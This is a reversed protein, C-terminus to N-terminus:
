QELISNLLDDIKKIKQCDQEAFDKLRLEMKKNSVMAQLLVMVMLDQRDRYAKKSAYASMTSNITDTAQRFIEEEEKKVFLDYNRQAIQLTIGIKEDM